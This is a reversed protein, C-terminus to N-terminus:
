KSMEKWPMLEEEGRWEIVKIDPLLITKKIEKLMKRPSIKLKWCLAQLLVCIEAEVEKYTGHSEITYTLDKNAHNVYIM